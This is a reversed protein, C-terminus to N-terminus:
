QMAIIIRTDKSGVDVQGGKKMVTATESKYENTSTRTRWKVKVVVGQASPRTCVGIEDEYATAKSNVIGCDDDLMRLEHVRTDAGVKLTLKFTLPTPQNPAPQAIAPTSLALLSLAITAKLM